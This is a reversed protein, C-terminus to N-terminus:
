GKDDVLRREKKTEWNGGDEYIEQRMAGVPPKGPCGIREYMDM